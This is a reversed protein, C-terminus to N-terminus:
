RGRYLQRRDVQMKPRPPPELHFQYWRLEWGRMKMKKKRQLARRNTELREDDKLVELGRSLVDIAGDRDGSKWLCWAYLNWLLSEKKTTKVLMEFLNKMEDFKKRKYLLAAQMAKTEWDRLMARELYPEAEDFRKDQYLLRGIIGDFQKGILFQWRRYKEGEKVIHIARDVATRDPKMPNKPKLEAQVRDMIGMVKKMTRRGLYIVLGVTTLLGPIFGYWFKFKPAGLAFGFILTVAAGVGISILLNYM